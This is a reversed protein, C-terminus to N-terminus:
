EILYLFQFLIIIFLCIKKIYQPTLLQIMFITVFILHIINVEKNAVFYMAVLSIKDINIFINKKIIDSLSIKDDEDEEKNRLMEKLQINENENENIIEKQAEEININEKIIENKEENTNIILDNDIDKLLPKKADDDVEKLLPRKIEEQKINKNEANKENLYSKNNLSYIFFIIFSFFINALYFRIYDKSYDGLAFHLYKTKSKEKLDSFYSNLIRSTHLCALSAIASPILIIISCFRINIIDIYLFSFFIWLFIGISYFNRFFYTWIIAMIRVIHLIFSPKSWFKKFNIFFEEIFNKEKEFNPNDDEDNEKPKYKQIYIDKSIFSLSVLSLCGLFYGTWDKFLSEYDEDDYYAYYFGFKQWKKTLFHNKRNEPEFYKDAISYINSINLILIHFLLSFRICYLVSQFVFYASKNTKLSFFILVFYFPMIYLFTLISKNFTAFGIIIYFSIFIYKELKKHFSNLDPNKIKELDENNFTFLKRILFSCICSIIIISEGILTKIINFLTENFLYSIGLDIYTKKHNTISKNEKHVLIIIVIKFILLLFSYIFIITEFTSKKRRQEMTNKLILQMYLFGILLLPLYLYNFNFSSCFILSLIILFDKCNHITPYYSKDKEEESFTSSYTYSYNELYDSISGSKPREILYDDDISEKKLLSNEELSENSNLLKNNENENFENLVEKM